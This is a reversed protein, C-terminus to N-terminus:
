NFKQLQRRSVLYYTGAATDGQYFERQVIGVIPSIYTLTKGYSSSNEITFDLEFVYCTYTGAPVTVTVNASKVFATYNGPGVVNNIKTPISHLTFMTDGPTSPISYPSCGLMNEWVESLIWDGNRTLKLRTGNNLSQEKKDGSIQTNIISVTDSGEGIVNGNVDFTTTSYTWSNSVAFPDLSQPSQTVSNCGIFCVGAAIFLLISNRM